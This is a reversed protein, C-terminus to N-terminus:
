EKPIKDLVAAAEDIKDQRYLVSALGKLADVNNPESKIIERYIEEAMPYDKRDAAEQAALLKTKADAAAPPKTKAAPGPAGTTEAIPLSSKRAIRVAGWGLLGVIGAAALVVWAIKAMRRLDVPPRNSQPRRRPQPMFGPGSDDEDGGQELKREALRRPLEQALKDVGTILRSLNDETRASSERLQSMAEAQRTMDQELASVRRVLKTQVNKVFTELTKVHTDEIEQQLKGSMQQFRKTVAEEIMEPLYAELNDVTRAIDAGGSGGRYPGVTDALQSALWRRPHDPLPM